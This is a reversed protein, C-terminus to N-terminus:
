AKPVTCSWLAGASPRRVQFSICDVAPVLNSFEDLPSFFLLRGRKLFPRSLDLSHAKDWLLQRRDGSLGCVDHRALADFRSGEGQIRGYLSSAARLRPASTKVLESATRRGGEWSQRCV